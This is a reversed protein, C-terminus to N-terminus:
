FVCNSRFKLTHAYYLALKQHTKGTVPSLVEGKALQEEEEKAEEKKQKLKESKRLPDIKNLVVEAMLEFLEAYSPNIKQHATLDKIRNLKALLEDSAVFKIETQQPTIVRETEQSMSIPQEPHLSALVKETERKSCGEVAELIQKKEELKIELGNERKQAQCYSQVQSLISVSLEGSQIKEEVEPVESALKMANLLRYATAESYKFEQVLHSDAGLAKGYIPLNRLAAM